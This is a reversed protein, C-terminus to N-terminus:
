QLNHHQITAYNSIIIIVQPHPGKILSELVPEVSAPHKSKLDELVDNTVPLLGTQQTGVFRLAASVRGQLMLRSFAQINDQPSHKSKALRDQVAM